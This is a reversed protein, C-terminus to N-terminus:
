GVASEPEESVVTDEGELPQSEAETTPAETEAPKAPRVRVNALPSEAIFKLAERFAEVVTEDSADFDLQGRVKGLHRQKAEEETIQKIGVRELGFSLDVRGGKKAVYLKATRGPATVKIFGSKEEQEFGLETAIETFTANLHGGKVARAQRETKAKEVKKGAAKLKKALDTENENTENTDSM